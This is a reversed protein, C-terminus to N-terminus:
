SFTLLKIFSVKHMKWVDRNSLLIGVIMAGTSELKMVTPSKVKTQIFSHITLYIVIASFQIYLSFVILNLINLWFNCAWSTFIETAIIGWM